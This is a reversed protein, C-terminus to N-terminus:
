LQLTRRPCRHDVTILLPHCFSPPFVASPTQKTVRLDTVIGAIVIGLVPVSINFMGSQVYMYETCLSVTRMERAPVSCLHVSLGCSFDVGGWEVLRHEM